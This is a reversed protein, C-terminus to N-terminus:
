DDFLDQFRYAEPQNCLATVVVCTSDVCAAGINHVSDKQDYLTTDRAKEARTHAICTNSMQADDEGGLSGQALNRKHRTRRQRALGHLFITYETV